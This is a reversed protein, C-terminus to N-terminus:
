CSVHYTIRMQPQLESTNEESRETLGYVQIFECGFREIGQKLVAATIPSAGYVLARLTAFDTDEVGPTMLLFQIVVPVMFANTIGKEPIVRLIVGPDIDRLVVTRCGFYLGVMGWGAGALDSSCVDSSWDSIRM